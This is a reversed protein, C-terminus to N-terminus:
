VVGLIWGEIAALQREEPKLPPNLFQPLSGNLDARQMWAAAAYAAYSDRVQACTRAM